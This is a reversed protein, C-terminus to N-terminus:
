FLHSIGLAKFYHGPHLSLMATIGELDGPLCPVLRLSERPINLSICAFPSLSDPTVAQKSIWLLFSCASARSLKWVVESKWLRNWDQLLLSPACGHGPTSAQECRWAKSMARSSNCTGSFSTPPQTWLQSWWCGPEELVLLPSSFHSSQLSLNQLLEAKALALACALRDAQISDPHLHWATSLLGTWSSPPCWVLPLGLETARSTRYSFLPLDAGCPYQLM